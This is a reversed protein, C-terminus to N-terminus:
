FTGFPVADVGRTLPHRERCLCVVLGRDSKEGFIERFREIGAAHAPTPTATLKAEV